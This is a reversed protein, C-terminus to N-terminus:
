LARREAEERAEAPVHLYLLIRGPKCAPQVVRHLNRVGVDLVLGEDLLLVVAHHPWVVGQSAIPEDCSQFAFKFPPRAVELVAPLGAHRATQKRRDGDLIQVADDLVIATLGPAAQKAAM